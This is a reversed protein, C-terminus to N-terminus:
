RCTGIEERVQRVIAYGILRNVRDELYGRLGYPPKGNYWPQVRVNPILTEDLWGKYILFIYEARTLLMYSTKHKSVWWDNVDKVNAFNIYPKQVEAAKCKKYRPDDNPLIDCNLGGHIVASEMSSKCRFANPDRNGYGIIFIISVYIFYIALDRIVTKMEMEQNRRERLKARFQAEFRRKDPKIRIKPRRETSLFFLKLCMVLNTACTNYESTEGADYYITPLVEDADTHDDDFTPRKVCFGIVM